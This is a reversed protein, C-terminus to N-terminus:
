VLLESYSKQRVKEREGVERKRERGRLKERKKKAIETEGM